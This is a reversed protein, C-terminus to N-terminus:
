MCNRIRSSSWNLVEKRRRAGEAQVAHRQDEHPVCMCEMKPLGTRDKSAAPRARGPAQGGVSPRKTCTYQSAMGMKELVRSSCDTRGVVVALVFRRCCNALGVFRHVDTCSAPTAWEAVAAAKRPDAAVGHESIVPGLFGVSARGFRSKLNSESAAKAYLQHHRLTEVRLVM